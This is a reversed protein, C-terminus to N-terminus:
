YKLGIGAAHNIPRLHFLSQWLVNDSKSLRPSGYIWSILGPGRAVSVSSAEEYLSKIQPDRNIKERLSASSEPLFLLMAATVRKHASLALIKSDSVTGTELYELWARTFNYYPSLEQPPVLNETWSKILSLTSSNIPSKQAELAQLSQGILMTSFEPSSNEALTYALDKLEKSWDPKISELKSAALLTSFFLDGPNDIDKTYFKKVNDTWIRLTKERQPADCFPGLQEFSAFLQAYSRSDTSQVETAVSILERVQQNVISTLLNRKALLGLGFLSNSIAQSDDRITDMGDVLISKLHISLDSRNIAGNKALLGLGYFVNSYHKPIESRLRIAGDVLLLSIQDSLDTNRLVSARSLLGLSYITLSIDEPKGDRQLM